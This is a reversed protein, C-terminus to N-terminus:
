DSDGGIESAKVLIKNIDEEKIQESFDSNRTLEGVFKMLEYEGDSPLGEESSDRLLESFLDELSKSEMDSIRSESEPLDYTSYESKLDMLVSDRGELLTRLYVSIEPSIREDTIRVGIYEGRGSDDILQSYIEQKTGRLYRMKHLPEIVERSINIAGNKEGIEVFLAGREKQKTEEFHYCLPTGGYRVEERGVPYSSHIHGLAVYDFGDFTKYDIEGVGGVMSESGGYEAKKGNAIVNQHAILINRESFNINQCAILAKAAQDYNRIEDNELLRKIEEPFIYPMLYFNVDGMGDPNELTVHTMEKCARGAIYIGEKKLIEGAFALKMGNDHNGAVMLVPIRMGCLGTLLMDLLKVAEEGPAGRDYVDGAILVADPKKEDCIKLFNIIFNRQDDIMSKGYISKGLHLDALHAFLM